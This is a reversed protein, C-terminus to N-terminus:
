GRIDMCTQGHRHSMMLIDGFIDDFLSGLSAAMNGFLEERYFDFLHM